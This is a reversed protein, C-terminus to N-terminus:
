EIKKLLDCANQYYDKLPICIVNKNQFMNRQSKMCNGHMENIYESITISVNEFQSAFSESTTSVQAM